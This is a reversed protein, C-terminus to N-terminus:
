AGAPVDCDSREAVDFQRPASLVRWRKLALRRHLDRELLVQRQALLANRRAPAEDPWSKATPRTSTRRRDEGRGEHAWYDRAAGRYQLGSYAVIRSIPAIMGNSELGELRKILYGDSPLNCFTKDVKVTFIVEDEPVQPHDTPALQLRSSM